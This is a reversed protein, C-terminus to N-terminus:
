ENDKDKIKKPKCLHKEKKAISGCKKCYYKADTQKEAIEDKDMGCITKSM